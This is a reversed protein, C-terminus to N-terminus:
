IMAFLIDRKSNEKVKKNDMLLNIIIITKDSDSSGSIVMWFSWNSLFKNNQEIPLYEDINYVFYDM